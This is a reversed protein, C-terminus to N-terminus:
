RGATWGKAACAAKITEWNLPVGATEGIGGYSQFRGYDSTNTDGTTDDWIFSAQPPLTIIASSSTTPLNNVLMEIEQAGYFSTCGSFMGKGDQLKSFSVSNQKLNLKQIASNKFMDRAFLLEGFASDFVAKASTTKGYVLQQLAKTGSFMSAGNELASFAVTNEESLGLSVVAANAFMYAATKLNGFAVTSKKLSLSFTDSYYSDGSYNNANEFMSTGNTLAGFAVTSAGTWSALNGVNGSKYFMCMASKLVPFANPSAEYAWVFKPVNTCFFMYDANVIADSKGTSQALYVTDFTSSGESGSPSAFMGITSTISEFCFGCSRNFINPVCSSGGTNIYHCFLDASGTITSTFRLDGKTNSEQTLFALYLGLFEVEGIKAFISAGSGSSGGGNELVEVRKDLVGEAATARNKEVEIASTNAAIATKNTEIAAANAEEAAKARAVETEIATANTNVETATAITESANAAITPFELSKGDDWTFKQLGHIPKKRMNLTRNGENFAYWYTNNGHWLEKKVVDNLKVTGLTSNGAARALLQGGTTAGVVGGTSTTLATETGLKVVGATSVTAMGAVTDWAEGDWAYNAGTDTVNWFDGVVNGETPLDAQTAVTGKYHMASTLTEELSSVKTSLEGISNAQETQLTQLTAINTTASTLNDYMTATMVGANSSSAARLSVASLQKMESTPTKYGDYLVVAATNKSYAGELYGGKKAIDATNTDVQEALDALTTTTNDSKLFTLVSVGTDGVKFLDGNTSDTVTFTSDSVTTEGYFGTTGGFTNEGGTSSFGAGTRIRGAAEISPIAPNDINFYASTGTISDVVLCDISADGLTTSGNVKLAGEVTAGKVCTLDGGVTAAGIATLSNMSAGGTLNLTTAKVTAATTTGTFTPSAKPALLAEAATARATEAEIKANLDTKISDSEEVTKDYYDESKGAWEEAKTASGAASEASAEAKTASGAASEASAEAKTASGGAETASGASASASEAAKEAYSKGDAVYGKLEDKVEASAKEAAEEAATTAAQKAEEASEASAQADEKVKFLEDVEKVNRGIAPKGDADFGVVRGARIDKSPLYTDGDWEPVKIAKSAEVAADDLRRYHEELEQVIEAVPVSGSTIEKAEVTPLSKRYIYVCQSFDGSESTLKNVTISTGDVVVSAAELASAYDQEVGTGDPFVWLFVLESTDRFWNVTATISASEDTFVGKYPVYNEAAM